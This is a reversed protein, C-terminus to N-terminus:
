SLLVNFAATLVMFLTGQERRALANLGATTPADVTFAVSAGRHGQVAPRPRDLPLTLLVPAGALQQQWYQLQRELTDGTLWQRQWWAYDAYQVALPALPSAEGRVFAGYLAAVEQVLVGRSWGDSVIHHLTLHVIHEDDAVRLLGARILPGSSLDFARNAETQLL